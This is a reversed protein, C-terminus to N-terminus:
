LTAGVAVVGTSCAQSLALKAWFAVVAQGDCGLVLGELGLVAGSTVVARL